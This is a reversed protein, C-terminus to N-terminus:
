IYFIFNIVLVSCQNEIRRLPTIWCESLCLLICHLPPVCVSVNVNMKMKREKQQSDRMKRENRKQYNGRKGKKWKKKHRSQVREGTTEVTDVRKMKDIEMKKKQASKQHIRSRRLQKKSHNRLRKSEMRNLTQKVKQYVSTFQYKKFNRIWAMEGQDGLFNSIYEGCAGDLGM